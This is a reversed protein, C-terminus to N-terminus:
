TVIIDEMTVKLYELPNEGAAKTRRGGGVWDLQEDSLETMGTIAPKTAVDAWLPEQQEQSYTSQDRM